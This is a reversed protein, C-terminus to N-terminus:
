SCTKHNWPRKNKHQFFPKVTQYGILLTAPIGLYHASVSRSIELHMFYHMAHGIGCGPCSSFGALKALCLSPMITDPDMFFLFGLALLWILSELYKRM